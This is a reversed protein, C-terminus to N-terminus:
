LSNLIRRLKLPSTGVHGTLASVGRGMTLIRDGRDYLTMKWGKESLTRAISEAGNLLGAIGIGQGEARIMTSLKLGSEKVGRAELGLSKSDADVSLTPLGNVSVTLRGADFMQLLDAITARRVEKRHGAM